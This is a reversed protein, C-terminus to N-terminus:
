NVLKYSFNVNEDYKTGKWKDVTEYEGVYKM